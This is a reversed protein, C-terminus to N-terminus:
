KVDSVQKNTSSYKKEEKETDFYCESRSKLYLTLSNRNQSENCKMHASAANLQQYFCYFYMLFFLHLYNLTILM